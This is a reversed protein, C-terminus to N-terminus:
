LVQRIVEGRSIAVPRGVHDHITTAPPIGLCHFITALVDPPQVLGDRPFAGISDSSGHVVGGRIGGGALALSFVSGWHDRGAAGNHRPTRGFEGMWVVLTEDLLGRVTLDELLTSYTEDLMPMLFDQLSRANQSHTDWGGDNARGEIRTWNVQVLPVGAEVLRRALLVSQGFRHRGYRDRLAAPEQGIDFARRARTSRLLDCAQQFDGQYRMGAVPAETAAFHRNVQELLSRRHDFRLPPVETPLALAPVQFDARTPDCHLLWPDAARGLWGADQGPWPINGTNWIHEPLTVAAPLSRDRPLLHKVV